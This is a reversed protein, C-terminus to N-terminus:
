ELPMKISYSNSSGSQLCTLTVAAFEVYVHKQSWGDNNLVKITRPAMMRTTMTGPIRPSRFANYFFPLIFSLTSSIQHPRRRGVRSIIHTSRSQRNLSLQSIKRSKFVNLPLQLPAPKVEREINKNAFFKPYTSSVPHTNPPLVSGSLGGQGHTLCVRRQCCTDLLRFWFRETRADGADLM